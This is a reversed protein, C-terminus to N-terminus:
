LQKPLPIVMTASGLAAGAVGAPAAPLLPLRTPSSTRALAPRAAAPRQAPAPRQPAMTRQPASARRALELAAALRRELEGLRDHAQAGWERLRKLERAQAFLLLAFLALGIAAAFGVYAGVKDIFDQVSLEALIM